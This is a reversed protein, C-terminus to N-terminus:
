ITVFRLTTLPKFSYIPLGEYSCFYYPIKTKINKKLILTPKSKLEQEHQTLFILKSTKFSDWKRSMDDVKKVRQSALKSMMTSFFTKHEMTFIRDREPYNRGGSLYGNSVHMLHMDMLRVELQWLWRSVDM